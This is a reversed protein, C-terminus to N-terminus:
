YRIKYRFPKIDSGCNPCMYYGSKVIEQKSVMVKCESCKIYKGREIERKKAKKEMNEIRKLKANWIKIIEKDTM